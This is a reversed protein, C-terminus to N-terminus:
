AEGTKISGTPFYPCREHLCEKNKPFFECRPRSVPMDVGFREKTFEVATEISQRGTRKCCRPGGTAVLAELCRMTMRQPVDWVEAMLPTAESLISAYIGAGAAAGCVGLFGCSGGSLKKGRKWAEDLCERLDIDGGNNQPTSVQADEIKTGLAHLTQEVGQCGSLAALCVLLLAALRTKKM